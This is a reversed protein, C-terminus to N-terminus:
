SARHSLCRHTSRPRRGRHIGERLHIPRFAAHNELRAALAAEITPLLAKVGSIIDLTSADGAKLIMMLSSRQGNVRVINTQPPFGDRVNAVDHIYITSTGSQKIPLNNLEPVTLPAANMDVEYEFTGIKATGTPLILNQLSIANVVDLPSLGKSQLEGTDLDVQM